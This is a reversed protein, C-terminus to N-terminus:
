RRGLYRAVLVLADDTGKGYRSLVLDAVQQPSDRVSVADGFESQIGDTALVLVDGRHVPLVQARVSSFDARSGVIGGRSVLVTRASREAWDARMLLGEVNGIGLWTMLDRAPDVSVLSMVVGRTGILAEHCRQVMSLLPEHAYRELTAVALKAATAAEEGHGLGDVVAILDAGNTRRVLSLDGSAQQGPLTFTAVGWELTAATGTASDDM